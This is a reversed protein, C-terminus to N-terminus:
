PPEQADGGRDAGAPLGRAARILEAFRQRDAQKLAWKAIEPRSVGCIALVGAMVLVYAVYVSLLAALVAVTGWTSTLGSFM